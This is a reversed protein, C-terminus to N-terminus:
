LFSFDYCPKRLHVQPLIMRVNSSVFPLLASPFENGSDVEGGMGKPTLPGEPPRKKCRQIVDLMRYKCRHIGQNPSRPLVCRVAILMTVHPIGPISLIKFANQVDPEGSTYRLQYKFCRILVASSAHDMAYNAVAKTKALWETITAISTLRTDHIRKSRSRERHQPNRSARDLQM